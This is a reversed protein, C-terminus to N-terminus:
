TVSRKDEELSKLYGENRIIHKNIKMLEPKRELLAFIGEYNFVKEENYLENFVAKLFEYDEPEDLTWRYDGKDQFKEYFGLKFRDNNKEFFMVVHERQSPLKAEKFAIELAKFSFVSVDLGDPFDGSLGYYDYQDRKYNEVIEDVISPDILPCDGTIRVIVDLNYEKAAYYYRSLVDNISGFFSNINLLDAVDKLKRDEKDTSTALIVTDLKKCHKLRNLVHWLAPKGALHLLVKRPLRKSNLRAQVIAGIKM